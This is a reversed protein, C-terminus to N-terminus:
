APNETVKPVPNESEDVEVLKYRKHSRSGFTTTYCDLPTLKALMEEIIQLPTLAKFFLTGHETKVAGGKSLAWREFTEWETDKMCGGFFSVLVPWM